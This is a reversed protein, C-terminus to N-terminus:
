KVKDGGIQLKKRIINVLDDIFRARKDKSWNATIDELEILIKVISGDSKRPIWLRVQKYGAEYMRKRYAESKERNTMAM